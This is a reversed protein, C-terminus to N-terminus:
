TTAIEYGYLAICWILLNSCDQQQLVEYHSSTKNEPLRFCHEVFSTINFIVTM